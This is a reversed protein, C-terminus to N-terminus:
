ARRITVAGPRLRDSMVPALRAGYDRNDFGDLGLRTVAADVAAPDVGEVAITHLTITRDAGAVNALTAEAQVGDRRYRRRQKRVEAVRAPGAAARAAGQADACREIKASLEPALRSVVAREAPALPFSANLRPAWQELAGRTAIRQKIDLREGDRLKVLVDPRDPLLLYIDRRDDGGHETWDRALRARAAEDMAADDDLWCRFEYRHDANEAAVEDPM